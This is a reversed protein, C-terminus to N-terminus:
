VHSSEDNPARPAPRSRSPDARSSVTARLQPTAVRPAAASPAQWRMALDALHAVLAGTLCIALVLYSGGALAERLALMLFVGALLSAFFGPLAPGRGRRLRVWLILLAECVVLGLILEIARGSLIFEAM